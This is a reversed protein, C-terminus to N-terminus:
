QDIASMRTLNAAYTARPAHKILPSAPMAKTTIRITAIQRKSVTPIGIIAKAMGSSREDSHDVASLHTIPARPSTANALTSIRQNAAAGIARKKDRDTAPWAKRGSTENSPNTRM